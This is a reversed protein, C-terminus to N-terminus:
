APQEKVVYGWSHEMKGYMIDEMWNKFILAYKGCSREGIPLSITSTWSIEQVGVVFYATGTVFVELLRGEEAAVFVESITVRREVVDIDTLRDKALEIVSKRTIGDLILQSLSPTVLELRDTELNRWVFFINAAGAETIEREPGFLWLIQDYRRDLAEAQAALMTGYNAGVKAFGYGGPWARVMNDKSAQIRLGDTFLGHDMTLYCSLMICILAEHPRKVGLAPDNAIVLPRMYLFTGPDPLWKRGDVACLAAMLSLLEKPDFAPLAVRTASMLLRTANLEPRFLRLKGDYGRYLKLGEFCQTAYHLCSASPMISLPGFPQLKPAAWGHHITWQCTVM